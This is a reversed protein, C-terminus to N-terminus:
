SNSNQVPHAAAAKTTTNSRRIYGFQELEAAFTRLFARLHDSWKSMGTRFPRAGPKLTIRVSEVDAPPDAGIKLHWLDMFEHVM